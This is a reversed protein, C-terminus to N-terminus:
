SMIAEERMRRTKTSIFHKAQNKANQNHKMLFYLYVFPKSKDRKVIVLFLKIRFYKTIQYPDHVEM